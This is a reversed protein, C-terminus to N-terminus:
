RPFRWTLCCGRARTSPRPGEWAGTVSSGEVSVSRRTVTTPYDRKRGHGSATKAAEEHSPCTLADPEGRVDHLAL